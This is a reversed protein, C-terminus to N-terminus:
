QLRYFVSASIPMLNQGAKRSIQFFVMYGYGTNDVRHADVSETQVMRVEGAAGETALKAMMVDDSRYLYAGGDVEPDNDWFTYAFGTVVAGDPLSVPVILFDDDGANQDRGGGGAVSAQATGTTSVRPVGALASVSVVGRPLKQCVVSGDPGVVRIASGPACTGTIRAQKQELIHETKWLEATHTELTQTVTEPMKDMTLRGQIREAELPATATPREAPVVPPPPPPPPPPAVPKKAVWPQTVALIGAGSGALFLFLGVVIPKWTM